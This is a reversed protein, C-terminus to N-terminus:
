FFNVMDGPPAFTNVSLINCQYLDNCRAANAIGAASPLWFNIHNKNAQVEAKNEKKRQGQVRCSTRRPCSYKHLLHPTGYLLCSAPLQETLSRGSVQSKHCEAAIVQAGQAENAM